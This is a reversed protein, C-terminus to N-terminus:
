SKVVADYNPAILFDFQNLDSKTIKNLTWRWKIREIEIVWFM